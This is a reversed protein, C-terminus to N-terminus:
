GSITYSVKKEDYGSVPYDSLWYDVNDKTVKEDTIVQITKKTRNNTLDDGMIFAAYNTLFKREHLENKIDQDCIRYHIGYKPTYKKTLKKFFDKILSEQKIIMEREVEPPCCYISFEECRCNGTSLQKFIYDLLTFLDTPKPDKLYDWGGDDPTDFFKNYRGVLALKASTRAHFEIYNWFADKDLNYNDDKNTYVEPGEFGEFLSPDDINKLPKDNKNTVALALRKDKAYFNKATLNFTKKEDFKINYIANEQKIKALTELTHKKFNDDIDQNNIFTNLQIAIDKPLAALFFSNRQGIKSTLLTLQNNTLLVESNIALLRSM